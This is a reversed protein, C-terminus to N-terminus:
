ASRSSTQRPRRRRAAPRPSPRSGSPPPMRSVTTTRPASPLPHAALPGPEVVLGGLRSVGDDGVLVHQPSLEGHVLPPDHTHAAALAGLVDAVIRLVVPQPLGQAGAATILAALSEGDHHESVM